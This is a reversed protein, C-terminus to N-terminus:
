RVLKGSWASTGGAVNVVNTFGARKLQGVATVSRHGHECIVFTERNADFEGLRGGLTGLPVNVAGPVHGAAYEYPERVDLVLPKGASLREALEQTTISKVGFGFVRGGM